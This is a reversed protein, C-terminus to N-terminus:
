DELDVPRPKLRSRDNLTLDFRPEDALLLDTLSPQARHQLRQWEDVSVLVAVQRGRLSVMQPGDSLSARLLESFRAKADRAPWVKM